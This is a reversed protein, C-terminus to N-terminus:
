TNCILYMKQIWQPLWNSKRTLQVLWDLQLVTQVITYVNYIDLKHIESTVHFNHISCGQNIKSCEMHGRCLKFQRFLTSTHKPCIQYSLIQNWYQGIRSKFFNHSTKKYIIWQREKLWWGKKFCLFFFYHEFSLPMNNDLQRHFSWTPHLLKLQLHLM